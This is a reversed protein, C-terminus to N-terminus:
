SPLKALWSLCNSKMTLSRTSLFLSTRVTYVSQYVCVCVRACVCVCVRARACVCVCVCVSVCALVCTCAYVTCHSRENSTVVHFLARYSDFWLLFLYNLFPVVTFKPAYTWERLFAWRIEQGAFLSVGTCVLDYLFAYYCSITPWNRLRIVKTIHQKPSLQVVM